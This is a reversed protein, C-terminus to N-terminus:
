ISSVESLQNQWGGGGGGGVYGLFHHLKVQQKIYSSLKIM